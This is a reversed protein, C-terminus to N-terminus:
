EQQVGNRYIEKTQGNIEADILAFNSQMENLSALTALVRRRAAEKDEDSPDKKGFIVRDIIGNKPKNQIEALAAEANDAMQKALAKSRELIARLAFMIPWHTRADARIPIDSDVDEFPRGVTFPCVMVYWGEGQPSFFNPFLRKVDEMIESQKRHKCLDWKTILLVVPLVNDASLAKSQHMDTLFKNLAHIKMDLIADENRDQDSLSDKLHEGDICIVVSDSELLRAQLAQRDIDSSEADLAGGRYDVWDFGIRPKYGYTLIFRYSRFDALNNKPPPTGHRMGSYGGLMYSGEDDNECALNFGHVGAGGMKGYLAYMYTTKACHSPGLMTIKHIPIQNMNM